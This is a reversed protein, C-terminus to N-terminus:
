FVSIKIPNYVLGRDIIKEIFSDNIVKRLINLAGNVDANVLKNNSSQFLGRKKREGLYKEHKKIEECVLSDCKSTYSEEHRIVNIGVEEAKYEIM